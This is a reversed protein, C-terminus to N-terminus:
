AANATPAIRPKKYKDSVLFWLSVVISSLRSFLGISWIVSPSMFTGSFNRSGCVPSSRVSAKSFDYIQGEINVKTMSSRVDNIDITDTYNVAILTGGKFDISLKPGSNFILSIIGSTIVVFSLIKTFNSKAMFDISTKKIIRM